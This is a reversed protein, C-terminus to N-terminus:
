SRSDNKETVAKKHKKLLLFTHQTLPKTTKTAVLKCLTLHMEILRGRLLVSSVFDIIARQRHSM